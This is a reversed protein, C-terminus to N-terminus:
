FRDTLLIEIALVRRLLDPNRIRDVDIYRSVELPGDGVLRRRYEGRLYFPLERRSLYRQQAQRIPGRLAVPVQLTLWNRLRAKPGPESAFDFGYASPYRALVPDLRQIIAAEFRGLNKRGIPIRASPVTFEPEALPTLAYGNQANASNNQGMWYRMRLQPYLSELHRRTVPERRDLGIADLHKQVLSTFFVRDDFDEKLLRTDITGRRARVFQEVSYSRDPLKWFNRFVEGAGGNLQLNASRSRLRRTALDAGSDVANDGKGDFFYFVERARETWADVDRIEFAKKDLHELALGEGECITRALRVDADGDSGYVYLEPEIGVKRMSALMLRSDYGGSLAACIDNGFLPKLRAFYHILSDAAAAVQEEASEPWVPDEIELERVDRDPSLLYLRKPSLMEVDRLLTRRGYTAGFFFMEYLEPKSLERDGLTKALALFSSSVLSRDENSFVHYLGQQDGFAHLQGEKHLLAFFHGRCRSLLRPAPFDRYLSRLAETGVQDRYILTGTSVAFDNGEFRVVNGVSRDHKHFVHLEFADNELTQSLGLGKTDFVRHMAAVDAARADASRRQRDAFIFGGL